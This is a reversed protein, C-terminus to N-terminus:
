ATRGKIGAFDTYSSDFQGMFAGGGTPNGNGTTTSKITPRDVWSDSSAATNTLLTQGAQLINYQGSKLTDAVNQSAEGRLSALKFDLGGKRRIAILEEIKQAATSAITGSISGSIDVGGRAAASVQSGLKYTYEREAIATERLMAENAFKAQDRYYAANESEQQARQFNAYFAGIVGLATGSAMLAVPIASQSFDAM